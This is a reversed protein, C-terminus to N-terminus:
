WPHRDALGSRMSRLLLADTSSAHNGVDSVDTTAVRTRFGTLPIWAAGSVVEGAEGVAVDTLVCRAENPPDVVDYDHAFVDGAVAIFPTNHRLGHACRSALRVLRAGM